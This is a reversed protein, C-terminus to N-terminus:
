QELVVGKATETALNRQPDIIKIKGSSIADAIYNNLDLM